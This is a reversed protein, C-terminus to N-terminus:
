REALHRPTTGDNGKKKHMMLGITSMLPNSAHLKEYASIFDPPCGDIFVGCGSNKQRCTGFVITKSPPTDGPAEGSKGVIITSGRYAGSLVPNAFCAHIVNLCSSCAGDALLRINHRSFDPFAPKKFERVAKDPTLGTFAANRFALTDSDLLKMHAATKIYEVDAPEFGMIMLAAIEAADPDNSFVLVGKNAPNGHLPGNGEMGVTGDMVVLRPRVIRSLALIPLVLGNRHFALKDDDRILGKLNKYGLTAGALIHTKMVPVNVVVDAEDLIASVNVATMGAKAGVPDPLPYERFAGEKVDFLTAGGLSGEDLKNLAFAPRTSRLNASGGEAVIVRAAGRDLFYGCLARVLHPNTVAGTKYSLRDCYNPKLLVIKGRVEGKGAYPDLGEDVKQRLEPCTSEPPADLISIWTGSPM